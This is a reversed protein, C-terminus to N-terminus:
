QRVVWTLIMFGILGLINLALLPLAVDISYAEALRFYIMVAVLNQALFILCFIALGVTFRSKVEKVRRYYFGFLWGLVLVSALAVFVDVTWISLLHMTM